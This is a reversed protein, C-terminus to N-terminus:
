EKPEIKNSNDAYMSLATLFLIIQVIFCVALVTATIAVNGIVVNWVEDFCGTNYYNTSTSLTAEACTFNDSNPLTVCCSLPTLLVHGGGYDTIWNIAQSFDYYSEIGCCLFKQNMVNWGISIINTGNLGAYDSKITRNLSDKIPAKIMDPKWYFIGMGIVQATLLVFLVMAYILLICEIKKFAGLFGFLTLILLIFGGLILVLSLSGALDSLKFDLTTNSFNASTLSAQLKLIFSDYYTKFADEGFRIVLGIIFLVLGILFFIINTVILFIRGVTLLLGM